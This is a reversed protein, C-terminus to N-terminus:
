DHATEALNPAGKPAKKVRELYAIIQQYGVGILSLENGSQILRRAHHSPTPMISEHVVIKRRMKIYCQAM